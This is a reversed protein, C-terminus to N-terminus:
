VYDCLLKGHFRINETPMYKVILSGIEFVVSLIFNKVNGYQKGDCRTFYNVGDTYIRKHIESINYISKPKVNGKNQLIGKTTSHHGCDVTFSIGCPMYLWINHNPDQKWEGSVSKGSLADTLREVNWPTTLVPDYGLNVVEDNNNLLSKELLDDISAGDGGTGSSPLPVSCSVDAPFMDYIFFEYASKNDRSSITKYINGSLEIDILSKILLYIPHTDVDTKTTLIEDAMILINKMHTRKAEADSSKDNLLCLKM